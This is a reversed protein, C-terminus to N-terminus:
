SIDQTKIDDDKLREKIAIINNNQDITFLDTIDTIIDGNFWNSFGTELCLCMKKGNSKHDSSLIYHHNNYKFCDGFTLEELYKM